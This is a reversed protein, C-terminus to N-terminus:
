RALLLKSGTPASVAGPIDQTAGGMYETDASM